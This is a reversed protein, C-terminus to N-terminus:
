ANDEGWDNSYVTIDIGTIDRLTKFFSQIIDNEIISRAFTITLQNNLTIMGCNIPSKGTPYLILEMKDVYSKMSEPMKINGLNSLTMTKAREGIQNFGLRMAPYKLFVPVGRIWFNNQLSVFRNIGEQLVDKQTKYKLQQSIEQTLEEFHVEDSMTMGVNAVSFFNRLSISPFHPRLSIPLAISIFENRGTREVKKDHIVQILISTLFATMSSGKSKAFANLQAADMVGHVVNIGPPNFRIGHVQHAKKARGGPKKIVQSTAYREFSDEMEEDVPSKEPLLILGEPSINKGSIKLYQYLLTKLFEAAGGGDTLSHFIEVSVRKGFYLIRILYANNEKRDIPGCPYDVEPKVILQEDNREMFDWFLGKRVRVTLTPFRLAVIDLAEQLLNPNVKEQLIASVRFVSSNTADSVAHFIKGTNDIRYWQNM